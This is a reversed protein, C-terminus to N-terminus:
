RSKINWWRCLTRKIEKRKNSTTLKKDSKIKTIDKLPMWMRSSRNRINYAWKDEWTNKKKSKDLDKLEKTLLKKTEKSPLWSIMLASKLKMLNRGHRKNKRNWFLSVTLFCDTIKRPEKEQWKLSFWSEICLKMMMKKMSMWTWIKICIPTGLALMEVLLFKNLSNAKLHVKMLTAVLHDRM